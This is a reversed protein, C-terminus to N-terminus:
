KEYPLGKRRIGCIPRRGARIAALLSKPLLYLLRMEFSFPLLFSKLVRLAIDLIWEPSNLSWVVDFTLFVARLLFPSM